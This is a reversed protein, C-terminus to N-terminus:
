PGRVPLHGASASGFGFLASARGYAPRDGRESPVGHGDLVGACLLVRDDARRWRWPPGVASYAKPPVHELPAYTDRPVVEIAPAEVLDGISQQLATRREATLRGQSEPISPLWFVCTPDLLLERGRRRRRLLEGVLVSADAVVIM